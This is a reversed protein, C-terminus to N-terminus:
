VVSKRDTTGIVGGGGARNDVVCPQGWAEQVRGALLRAAIDTIGGPPAPVIIRTPRAPRWDSALAAPAAGIAAPIATAGALLSRRTIESM